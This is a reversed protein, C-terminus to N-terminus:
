PRNFFQYHDCCANDHRSLRSPQAEAKGVWRWLRALAKSSRRTELRGFYHRCTRTSVPSSVVKFFILIGHCDNGFTPFEWWRWGITDSLYGGIPGGSSRGITSALNVVSRWTAVERLPVTDTGFKLWAQTIYAVCYIGAILISVIVHM